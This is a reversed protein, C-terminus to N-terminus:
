IVVLAPASALLILSCSWVTAAVLPLLLVSAPDVPIASRGAATTVLLDLVAAAVTTIAVLHTVRFVDQQVALLTYQLRIVHWHQIKNKVDL